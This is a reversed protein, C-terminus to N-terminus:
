MWDLYFIWLLTGFSYERICSSSCFQCSLRQKQIGSCFRSCYICHCVSGRDVSQYCLVVGGESCSNMVLVLKRITIM